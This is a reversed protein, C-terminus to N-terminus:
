EEDLARAGEAALAPGYSGLADRADAFFATVADPGDEAAMRCMQEATEWSKPGDDVEPLIHCHIDVVCERNLCIWPFSEFYEQM